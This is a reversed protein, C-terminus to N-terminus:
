DAPASSNLAASAATVLGQIQFYRWSLCNATEIKINPRSIWACAPETEELCRSSKEVDSRLPNVDWLRLGGQRWCGSGVGIEPVLWGVEFKLYSRGWARVVYEMGLPVHGLTAIQAFHDLTLM